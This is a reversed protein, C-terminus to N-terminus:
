FPRRRRRLTLAPRPPLAAGALIAAPVGDTLWDAQAAVGPLTREARELRSRIDPPRRRDDHADSSVNHVLGDGLLKIAFARVRRGFDGVISGASISCLVGADVLRALREPERQFLPSREPHALLLDQGHMRLRYAHTDFDLETAAYPSELMLFPGDGLQAALRDDADLDNLRSLAVEGGAKLELEIGEAALVSSLSAVAAPIAEPQVDYVHDIHPTAVITRVGAAVAGRAVALAEELTAPGDDLGPLIHNHLDIM